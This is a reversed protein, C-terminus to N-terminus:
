FPFYLSPREEQPAVGLFRPKVDSYGGSSMSMIKPMDIGVKVRRWTIMLKIAITEPNAAVQSKSRALGTEAHVPTKRVVVTAVLTVPKKKGDFNPGGCTMPTSDRTSRPAAM